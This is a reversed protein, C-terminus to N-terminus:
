VPSPRTLELAAPCEPTLARALVADPQGAAAVEVLGAPGVLVSCLAAAVPEAAACWPLRAEGVVRELASTFLAEPLRRGRGVVLWLPVESCYAVSALARSGTAALVERGGAALAEVLVVDAASVAAGIGAAPVVEAEVDARQLRRVFSRGEDDADVALVRVDGRQLVGDGVLDPWGVVCVTADDPLYQVLHEPTPDHELESALDRLTRSPENSTLVSACLWWMPGSSPHRDVLRRCALVLEAPDAHLSRLADATERVLLRQDDTSARAIYRLREM